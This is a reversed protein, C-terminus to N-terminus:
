IALVGGLRGAELGPVQPLRTDSPRCQNRVPSTGHGASRNHDVDPGRRDAACPVRWYSDAPPEEANAQRRAVARPLDLRHVLSRRWREIPGCASQRGGGRAEPLVVKRRLTRTIRM